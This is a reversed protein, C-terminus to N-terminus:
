ERKAWRLSTEQWMDAFSGWGAVEAVFDSTLTGTPPVRSSIFDLVSEGKSRVMAHTLYLSHLYARGAEVSDLGVFPKSLIESASFIGPTAPFRFQECPRKRCALYQALGEDFWTPWARGNARRSIVAHSLEHRLIIALRGDVDTLMDRSVPVRMRGDFVGEAWGPGGPIVELFEEKRYLIVEIPSGPPAIGLVESYENLSSELIELVQRLIGDHDDERYSVFFHESRETKQGAGSKAKARMGALRDQAMKLTDPDLGEQNAAAELITVADDYRGLSELTDAYVLRGEVDTPRALVYTALYSAAEPWNQTVRLCYGLGKQAEPVLSLGLVRYFIKIAEDCDQTKIKMWGQSTMLIPLQRTLWERFAETTNSAALVQQVEATATAFGGTSYSVLIKRYVAMEADAFPEKPQELVPQEVKPIIKKKAQVQRAQERDWIWGVTGLLAVLLLFVNALSVTPKM